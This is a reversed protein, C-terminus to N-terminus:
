NVYKQNVYNQHVCKPITKVKKGQEVLAWPKGLTQIGPVM